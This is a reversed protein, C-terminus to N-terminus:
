FDLVDSTLVCVSDFNARSVRDRAAAVNEIQPKDCPTIM